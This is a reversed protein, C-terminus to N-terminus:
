LNKPNKKIVKKQKSLKGGGGRKSKNVNIM